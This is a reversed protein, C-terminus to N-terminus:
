GDIVEPRTLCRIKKIDLMSFDKLWIGRMLFWDGSQANDAIKQGIKEWLQRKIRAVVPKATSDDVVFMDVFLTNGSLAYGRKALRVVENEDRRELRKMCGIIVANERDELDAILKAPSNINHAGPDSYIEGWLTRGPSLDKYRPKCKGIAKLDSESLGESDRKAIYRAAKAPGIGILSQYGGVLRGNAATWNMGSKQPDFAVIELGEDRLERLIEIAQDDDKASRMCAAAFEVPHHAKLWACWYSIIAYSVTHSKNMGWAGFSCIEGWIARAEEENLGGEQAGRVFEDGRRNFYEEGKRGSMARRIESVVEWSFRGIEYCIRMVQEQYLVVGMTDGLYASMTPHKFTVPEVGNVRKIYSHTAGGGLPGPRALATIHDIREFKNIRLQRSVRRQAAGEFQFIGSFRFDNFVDFAKPDSLALAYLQDATVVGADEIVGLTRLGLADIKLLNLKEAGKKDVQAVGDAVTCYNTVEDTSVIVGAAHISTHSAHEELESVLVAEPYASIFDKGPKTTQLTDQLSHGFRSDGSSYEILVNLVSFTAGPNIGLKKSVHAIASRPKLRSVNGIRAVNNAGHRERLYDFVMHRKTDSFDIDIDPLDGRNLDIFREFILGHVIPDVETIDLLYCVLSGASSGRAPGVLMHRKAYRVLDSVVLFYSEYAKSEVVAIERQLRAEYEETWESIHGRALRSSKGADLESRFDGEFSIMPARPLKGKFAREAAEHTSRVADALVDEPLWSFEALLSRESLIHQPTPRKSDVWALFRLRDSPSPYDADSTLAVPKSNKKAFELAALTRRRSRPNIDVYDIADPEKLAAGAFRLVGKASCVDEESLASSKSSFQYFAQSCEAIGWFTPRLDVGERALLQFERGYMPACDTDLLAAEWDTHGWTGKTDVLAACPTGLRLLTEAVSRIPGYCAKFSYESRVRLQPLDSPM